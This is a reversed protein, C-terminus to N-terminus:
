ARVWKALLWPWLTTVGPLIVLRFGWSSGKAAPDIHSVGATVFAVAFLLGVGTYIAVLVEALTM